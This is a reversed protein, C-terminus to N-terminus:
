GTASTPEQYQELGQAKRVRPDISEFRVGRARAGRQRVLKVDFEVGEEDLLRQLALEAYVAESAGLVRAFGLAKKLSVSRAGREIDSLNTTSVGLIDAMAEQSLGEAKRFSRLARGLSLKPERTKNEICM